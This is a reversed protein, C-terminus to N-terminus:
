FLWLRASVPLHDSPYYEGNNKPSTNFKDVKNIGKLFIYDIREGPIAGVKFGTYTFNPGSISDSLLMADAFHVPNAPDTLILYPESEPSANFDGLIIAPYLGALSDVATM